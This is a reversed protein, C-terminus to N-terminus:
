RACGGGFGANGWTVVSGDGLIAAFARANGSVYVSSLHLSLTDGNQLTAEQLTGATDVVGGCSSLLRGRGVALARQARSRLTEVTEDPDAELSVKRGSLLSVIITLPMIRHLPCKCCWLFKTIGRCLPPPTCFLWFTKQVTIPGSGAQGMSRFERLDLACGKTISWSIENSHTEALLQHGLSFGLDRWSAVLM